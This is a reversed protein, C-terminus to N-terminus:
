EGAGERDAVRRRRFAWSSVALAVLLLGWAGLSFTNTATKPMHQFHPLDGTVNPASVSAMQMPAQNPAGGANPKAASGSVADGAQSGAVAQAAATGQNSSPVYKVAAVGKGRDAATIRKPSLLWLTVVKMDDATLNAPLKDYEPDVALVPQATAGTIKAAEAKPYALELPASCAPCRWAQLIQRKDADARFLILGTEAAPHLKANPAALLLYHKGSPSSEIRLIARDQLRDEIAFTYEGPQLVAGPIELSQQLTITQTQTAPSAFLAGNALVFLAALKRACSNRCALTNM